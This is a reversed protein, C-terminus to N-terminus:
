QERSEIEEVLRTVWQPVDPTRYAVFAGRNTQCVIFDGNESNKMEVPRVRQIIGDSPLKKLPTKALRYKLATASSRPLSLISSSSSSSATSEILTLTSSNLENSSSLNDQDLGIGSDSDIISSTYETWNSKTM